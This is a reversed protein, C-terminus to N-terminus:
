IKPKKVKEKTEDIVLKKNLIHYNFIKDMFERHESYPLLGKLKDEEYNRANKEKASLEYLRKEISNVCDHFKQQLYEIKEKDVYQLIHNHEAILNMTSELRVDEMRSEHMDKSTSYYKDFIHIFFVEGHINVLDTELNYKEILEKTEELRYMRTYFLINEGANTIHNFDVKLKEMNKIKVSSMVFKSQAYVYTALNDNNENGWFYQVDEIEFNGLESWAGDIRRDKFKDSVRTGHNNVFCEIYEKFNKKSNMGETIFFNILIAKEQETYYKKM